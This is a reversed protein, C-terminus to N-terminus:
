QLLISDNSFSKGITLKDGVFVIEHFIKKNDIKLVIDAVRENTSFTSSDAISFCFIIPKENKEAFSHKPIFFCFALVIFLFNRKM